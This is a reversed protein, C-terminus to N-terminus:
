KIYKDLLHGYKSKNSNRENEHEKVWDIVENIAKLRNREEEAEKEQAKHILDGYRQKERLEAKTHPIFTSMNKYGGLM